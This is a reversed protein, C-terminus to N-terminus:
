SLRVLVKLASREHMAKYGTPVDDLNVTLDLVPSPDLRGAVVDALLEPLYARV